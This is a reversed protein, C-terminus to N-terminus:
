TSFLKTVENHFNGIFKDSTVTPKKTVTKNKRNEFVPAVQKPTAKPTASKVATAKPTVSHPTTPKSPKAPVATTVKVEKVPEQKSTPKQTDKVEVTKVQKIELTVESKGNSKPPTKVEIKVAQPKAEKKTPTKAKSSM